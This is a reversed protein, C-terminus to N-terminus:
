KIIKETKLIIAVQEVLEDITGNNIIHYKFEANDLATESAHSGVVSSNLDLVHRVVKITIGGNKVVAELENPFRTDTIIWNPLKAHDEIPVNPYFPGPKYDSMLANVWVNEHIIDRMAQTGLLQLFERYTYNKIFRKPDAKFIEDNAYRALSVPTHDEGVVYAWDNSMVKNKFEQSELDQVTCGTLLAVVEKLKGAFAKQQFDCKLYHKNKIYDNYNSESIKYQNKDSDILYQIINATTNKGSQMKGSLSIIM